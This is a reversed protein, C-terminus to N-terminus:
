IHILSLKAVAEAAEKIVLKSLIARKDCLRTSAAVLLFLGDVVAARENAEAEKALALANANALEARKLDGEAAGMLYSWM